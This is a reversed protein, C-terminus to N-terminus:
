GACDACTVAAADRDWLVRDGPRVTDACRRCRGAYRATTWGGSRSAITAVPPRLRRLLRVVALSVLLGVVAGLLAPGFVSWVASVLQEGLCVEGPACDVARPRGQFGALAGLLFGGGAGLRVAVDVLVDIADNRQAKMEGGM